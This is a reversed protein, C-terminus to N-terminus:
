DIITVDKHFNVTTAISITKLDWKDPDKAPYLDLRMIQCAHNRTDWGFLSLVTREKCVAIPKVVIKSAIELDALYGTPNNKAMVDVTKDDVFVKYHDKISGTIARMVSARLYGLKISELNPDVYPLDYDSGLEKQPM